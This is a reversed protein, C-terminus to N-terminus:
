SIVLVINKVETFGLFMIAQSVSTIKSSLGYLPSNVVKLLKTVSSQDQMLVNAVDQITSRPNSTAELLSTYITPLTPFSDIKAILVKIDLM